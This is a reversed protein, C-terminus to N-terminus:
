PRGFFLKGSDIPPQISPTIATPYTPKSISPHCLSVINLARFMVGCWVRTVHPFLEEASKRWRDHRGTSRTGRKSRCRTAAFEADHRPIKQPMARTDLPATSSTGQAANCRRLRGNACRRPFDGKTLNCRACFRVGDRERCGGHEPLGCSIEHVKPFSTSTFFMRVAPIM